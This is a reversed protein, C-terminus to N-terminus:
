ACFSTLIDIMDQVLEGKLETENIVLVKRKSASLATVIHDSGFKALRDRYEVVISSISADALIKLLGKRDENM